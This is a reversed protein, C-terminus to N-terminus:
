FTVNKVADTKIDTERIAMFKKELTTLTMLNCLLTTIM